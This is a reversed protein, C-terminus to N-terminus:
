ASRAKKSEAAAPVPAAVPAPKLRDCFEQLFLRLRERQEPSVEAIRGKKESPIHYEGEPNIIVTLVEIKELTEAFERFDKNM